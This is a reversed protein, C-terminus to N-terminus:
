SPKETWTKWAGSFQYITMMGRNGESYIQIFGYEVLAAIDEYFAKKNMTARGYIGIKFAEGMTFFFLDNRQLTEVDPYKRAVEGRVTDGKYHTRMKLYLSIARPKLKSWAESEMMELTMPVYRRGSGAFRPIKSEGTQKRKVM